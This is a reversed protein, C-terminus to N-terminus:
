YLNLSDEQQNQQETMAIKEFIVIELIIQHDFVTAILEVAFKIVVAVAVVATAFAVVIKVVITIAVVAVVVFSSDMVPSKVEKADIVIIGVIMVVPEKSNEIVLILMKVRMMMSTEVVLRLVEWKNGAELWSFGDEAEAASARWNIGGGLGEIPVSPFGM